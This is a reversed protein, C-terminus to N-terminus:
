AGLVVRGGGVGRRGCAVVPRGRMRQSHRPMARKGCRGREVERFGGSRRKWQWSSGGSGM